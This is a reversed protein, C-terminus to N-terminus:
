SPLFWPRSPPEYEYFGEGPQIPGSNADDWTEFLSKQGRRENEMRQRLGRAEERMRPFEEAAQAFLHRMIRDGAGNDTAFIIYYVISGAENRVEIFHTWEYLLEREIRWRMLNLYEERARGPDIHGNLRAAYIENWESTGYMKDIAIRDQDRIPVGDTRLLRTFMPVPFLLFLEVKYRRHSKHEALLEITTWETETGNPDLFAFTPAWDLDKLEMLVEPLQENCDGSVVKFDRDPFDLRLTTELVHAKAPIEFFRLKTFPPNEIKLATRASSDLPAGTLRDQNEAEGAFADIYIREPSKNKTATTFADLYRRLLDLKGKTWYGWARGSM